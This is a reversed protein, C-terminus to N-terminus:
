KNILQEGSITYYLVKKQRGNQLRVIYHDVTKNQVSKVIETGENVKWGKYESNAIAKLISEPLAVNKDVERYKILDGTSEFVAYVDTGDASRLYVEYHDIPKDYDSAPEWGYKKLEYPFVGYKLQTKGKFLEEAAKIVAPPMNGKKLTLQELPVDESLEREQAQSPYAFVVLIMAFFLFKKM